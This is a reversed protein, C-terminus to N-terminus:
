AASKYSNDFGPLATARCRAMKLHLWGKISSESCDSGSSYLPWHAYLTGKATTSETTVTVKQGNVIRRKYAVRNTQGVTVDGSNFTIVTAGATKAAAATIAVTYKGAALTTAEALGRPNLIKVSNAQVEFPLNVTLGTVVDYLNSELTAYDGETIQEANAMAFMELTFLSSTFTLESTMDSDIYALPSRGQGGTITIVNSTNTVSATNVEDFSFVTGDCREFDINPNDVIYGDYKPLYIGEM